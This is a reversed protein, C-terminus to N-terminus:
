ILGQMTINKTIYLDRKYLEHVKLFHQYVASKKYMSLPLVQIIFILYPNKGYRKQEKSNIFPTREHKSQM